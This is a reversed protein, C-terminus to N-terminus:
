GLTAAATWSDAWSSMSLYMLFVGRFQTLVVSFCSLLINVQSTGSPLSRIIGKRFLHGSKYAFHLQKKLFNLFIDEKKM